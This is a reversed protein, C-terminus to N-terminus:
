RLYSRASPRKRCIWKALQTFGGPRRKQEAAGPSRWVGAGARGPRSAQAPSEAPDIRSVPHVTVEDCVNAVERPDRIGRHTLEAHELAILARELLDAVGEGHKLRALTARLVVALEVVLLVEQNKGAIADCNDFAFLVLQSLPVEDVTRGTDGM